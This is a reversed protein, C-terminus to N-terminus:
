ILERFLKVTEDSPTVGLEDRLAAVCVRYQRGVLQQQHQSAYCRMLLRHSSESCPDHGLALQGFRQADALEGLRFHIEAIGELAQGYLDQLRRQEPLYWEGDGDDEFLPGRYLGIAKRYAGIVQEPRRERHAQQADDVAALFENRDIWWTLEPNLIYCGDRYLVPQAGHGLGDLTNRLSYLAVNLNNRASDHSHDPWQLSMLVDRRIPRDQHILLYQFVARAKLSTWRPVRRGAVHVELPGLASAAIDADPTAPAPAPEPEPQPQLPSQLQPPAQLQAQAQPPPFLETGPAANRVGGRGRRFIDLLQGGVRRNKESLLADARQNIEREVLRCCRAAAELDIAVRQYQAGCRRLQRVTDVDFAAGDSARGLDALAREVDAPLPYGALQRLESLAESVATPVPGPLGASRPGM